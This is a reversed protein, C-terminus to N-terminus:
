RMRLLDRAKREAYEILRTTHVSEGVPFTFPQLVGRQKVIDAHVDTVVTMVPMGVVQDLISIQPSEVRSLDFHNGLHRSIM